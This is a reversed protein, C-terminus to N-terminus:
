ISDNLVLLDPNKHGIINQSMEIEHSKRNKKALFFLLMSLNHVIIIM